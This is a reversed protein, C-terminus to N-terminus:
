VSREIALSIQLIECCKTNKSCSDCNKKEISVVEDLILHRNKALPKVFFSIAQGDKAAACSNSLVTTEGKLVANSKAREQMLYTDPTYAAIFYIDTEMLSSCLFQIFDDNYDACINYVTRGLGPIDLFSVFPDPDLEETIYQNSAHSFSKYRIKKQHRLLVTGDSSIIYSINNSESDSWHSGTFILKINQLESQLLFSKIEWLSSNNLVLEPFSLINVGQEDLYRILETIRYNHIVENAKDYEVRFYEESVGPKTCVWIEKSFPCCGINIRGDTFINKNYYNVVPIYNNTFQKEVVFFNSFSTALATNRNTVTQRGKRIKNKAFMAALYSSPATVFLFGEQERYDNLPGYNIIVKGPQKILDPVLEDFNILTQFIISASYALNDQFVSVWGEKWPFFDNRTAFPITDTVARVKKLADTNNNCFLKYKKKWLQEKERSLYCYLEVIFSYINRSSYVKDMFTKTNM